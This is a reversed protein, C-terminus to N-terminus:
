PILNSPLSEVITYEDEMLDIGLISGKTGHFYDSGLCFFHYGKFKSVEGDYDQVSFYDFKYEFYSSVYRGGGVHYDQKIITGVKM